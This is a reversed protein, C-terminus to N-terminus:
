RTGRPRSRAGSQGGSPQTPTPDMSRLGGAKMSPRMVLLALLTRHHGLARFAQLAMLNSCRLRGGRGSRHPARHLDTQDDLRVARVPEPNPDAETVKGPKTNARLALVLADVDTPRLRDLRISGFPASEWHKGSLTAYLSRTSEKRDSAALTTERWRAMWTGVTTTADKV